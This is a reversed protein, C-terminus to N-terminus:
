TLPLELSSISRTPIWVRLNIIRCQSLLPFTPSLRLYLVAVLQRSPSPFLRHSFIVRGRLIVIETRVEDKFDFTRGGMQDGFGDSTRIALM